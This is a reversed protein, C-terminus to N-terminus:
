SALALNITKEKIDDVNKDILELHGSIRDILHKANAIKERDSNNEKLAALTNKYRHLNLRTEQLYKEIAKDIVAIIEKSEVNFNFTLPMFLMLLSVGAMTLLFILLLLTTISETNRIEPLLVAIAISFTVLNAFCLLKTKRKRIIKKSVIIIAEEITPNAKM